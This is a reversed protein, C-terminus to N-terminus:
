EIFASSLILNGWKSSSSSYILAQNNAPSSLLVDLLDGLASAGGGGGGGSSNIWKSGDYKLIQGVSPSLILCDQLTRLFAKTDEEDNLNTSNSKTTIFGM